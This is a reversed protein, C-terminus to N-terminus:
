HIVIKIQFGLQQKPDNDQQFYEQGKEIDLKEFSGVVREDLIECYQNAYMRGKVEILKGM